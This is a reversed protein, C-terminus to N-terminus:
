QKTDNEDLNKGCLKLSAENVMKTVTAINSKQQYQAQVQPRLVRRRKAGLL